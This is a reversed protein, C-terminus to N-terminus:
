QYMYKLHEAGLINSVAHPGETIWRVYIANEFTYIVEGTHRAGRTGKFNFIVGAKLGFASPTQFNLGTDYIRYIDNREIAQVLFLGSRDKDALVRVLETKTLALRGIDSALAAQGFLSALISVMFILKQVKM